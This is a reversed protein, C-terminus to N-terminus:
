FFIDTLIWDNSTEDLCATFKIKHEIEDNFFTVTFTQTGNVFYVNKYDIKYKLNALNEQGDQIVINCKIENDEDYFVKTAFYERVIVSTYYESVHARLEATTFFKPEGYITSVVDNNAMVLEDMREPSITTLSTTEEIVVKEEFLSCGTLNGILIIFILFFLIIKKM